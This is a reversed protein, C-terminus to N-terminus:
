PEGKEIRRLAAIVDVLCKGPIVVAQRGRVIRITKDGKGAPIPEVIIPQHIFPADETCIVFSGANLSGALITM